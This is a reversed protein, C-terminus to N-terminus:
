ELMCFHIAPSAASASTANTQVGARAAPVVSIVTEPVPLTASAGAISEIGRCAQRALEATSGDRSYYVVLVEAM